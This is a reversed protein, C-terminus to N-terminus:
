HKLSHYAFGKGSNEALYNHLEQTLDWEYSQVTLEKLIFVSFHHTTEARDNGEGQHSWIRNTFACISSATSQVGFNSVSHTHINPEKSM